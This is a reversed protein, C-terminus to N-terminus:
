LRKFNTIMEKKRENTRVIFVPSQTHNSDTLLSFLVSIIFDQPQREKMELIKEHMIRELDEDEVERPDFFKYMKGNM